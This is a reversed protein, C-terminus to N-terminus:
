STVRYAVKHAIKDCPAGNLTQMPLSIAAYNEENNFSDCYPVNLLQTWVRMQKLNKSENFLLYNKTTPTLKVFPNNKVDVEYSITKQKLSPANWCKSLIPDSIKETWDQTIVIKDYGRYVFYRDFNYPAGKDHFLTFFEDATVPLVVRGIEKHGQPVPLKDLARYLEQDTPERM